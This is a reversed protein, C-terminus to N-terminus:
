IFEYFFADEATTSPLGFAADVWNSAVDLGQYDVLNMISLLVVIALGAAAARLFVWRLADYLSSAHPGAEFRLAKLTRDVFFAGFSEAREEALTHEIARLRTLERRLVGDTSLRGELKDSEEPELSGDLYRLLMERDDKM